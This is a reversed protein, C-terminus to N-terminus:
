SNVAFGGKRCLPNHRGTNVWWRAGTPGSPVPWAVSICVVSGAGVMFVKERACGHVTVFPSM